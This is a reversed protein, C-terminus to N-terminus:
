RPRAQRHGPGAGSQTSSSDAESIAAALTDVLENLQFPKRIFHEVSLGNLAADVMERGYASTFIVKLNPQIRKVTEYIERSSMGPLTVDLLMVQVDDRVRLSELAAGGNSAEIVSFGRKRLAKSVAARLIDEDEVILVTAAQPTAKAVAALPVARGHQRSKTKSPLWLRFTTGQGPASAIHIGGGHSRVIGQVISLGLGRGDRKTTFFPDFIKGQLDAAIGAGTDSIEVCVYDGRPLDNGTQSNDGVRVLLTGVRITGSRDGIAESANTVLNLVVQRLQAPNAQVRPLGRPLDTELLTSRAIAVKLLQLMEEVLASVDVPEFVPSENGGYIMLERVIEAGRISATRIRQLEERVPAGAAHESLGLEASALIGGLLNNFDHAIGSALKGISELKQRALDAEQTRRTDTLDHCCGVLRFIHGWSDRVPILHTRFYRAGIALRLEGEYSIPVGAQLCERYHATVDKAVEEPLVDEIFKGSVEASSLGVAKEEAPNLEAFKFRGDPTVNLVFICDPINDIIQRNILESQRLAAQARIREFCDGALRAHLELSQLEDDPLKRPQPFYIALLGLLEGTGGRLPTLYGFNHDPPRLHRFCSQSEGDASDELLTFRGSKDYARRIATLTDDSELVPDFESKSFGHAAAITLTQTQPDRIIVSGAGAGTMGCLSSLLQELLVVPDAATSLERHLEFVRILLADRQVQRDQSQRAVKQATIDNNVELVLVPDGHQDRQLAWYSAVWVTSGDRCVHKLEGAWRGESLLRRDIEEVSTPFETRLLTHSCKGLMEELQWGYLKCIGASCFLITGDLRRVMTPALNLVQLLDEAALRQEPISWTEGPKAAAAEMTGPFKLVKRSRNRDACIGRRCAPKLACLDHSSRLSFTAATLTVCERRGPHM